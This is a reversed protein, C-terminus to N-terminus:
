APARHQRLGAHADGRRRVGASLGPPPSGVAVVTTAIGSGPSARAGWRMAYRGGFLTVNVAGPLAASPTIVGDYGLSRLRRGERQCPGYDEDVLAEASLGAAEARGLDRYDALGDAAISAIWIPVRIAAVADDDSVDERRILEAWAGEPSLSLYQTPGDGPAHWRGPQANPRAWFPTPFRSHRFAVTRLATQPPEPAM